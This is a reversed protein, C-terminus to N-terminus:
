KMRFGDRISEGRLEVAELNGEYLIAPFDYYWIQDGETLPYFIKIGNWEKSDSKAKPYDQQLIMYDASINELFYTKDDSAFMYTGKIIDKCMVVGLLIYLVVRIKHQILSFVNLTIDGLAYLPLIIIYGYGFRNSPASIMFFAFSLLIIGGFFVYPRQEKYKQPILIRNVKGRKVLGIVEYVMWAVSRVMIVFAATFASLSLYRNAKGQESWWVPFWETITQDIYKVDKTYRAWVIIEDAEYRVGSAPIKWDFSFLDIAPFPYIFWGTIIINRIFYPAVLLAGMIIYKIIDRYKREKLLVGAPQIALLALIGVSLKISVLFVAMVSLLAYESVSYYADNKIYGRDKERDIIEVWRICLWVILWIVGQDTSPSIMEVAVIFFYVFPSFYMFFVVRFKAGTKSLIGWLSYVMVFGALFGSVSHLSRGLFGFSYLACLCFYSSNFGLRTQMHALGKIVGYSEIWHISQAHYTGTDYTFKGYCTFYLCLLVILITGAMGTTKIILSRYSILDKKKPKKIGTLRGTFYSLYKERDTVLFLLCSIVLIINAAFGVGDILSFYGAYATIVCIGCVVCSGPNLEKSRGKSYLIRNLIFFGTIFCTVFIYLWNLLTILM